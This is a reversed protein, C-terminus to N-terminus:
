SRVCTEHGRATVPVISVVEDPGELLAAEDALNVTPCVHAPILRLLAGLPPAEGSEVLLPLHEESPRLARLGAMGEVTACPDGCAADLAKSGADLTVRDAAPRSVVRAQVTVAAQFGPIGLAESRGDWYVVTGPSVCHDVTRFPEYALAMPFTPTGSTILEHPRDITRSLALLDAYLGRCAAVRDNPNPQYLHGDYFHLGRLDPGAAALVAQVRSRDAIPIGTRHYGPDLDVFVGFGRRRLEATHAPDESLMAFRHPRHAKALAAFRDLNSGHQAMAVLVDVPEDCVRLLVELERTTAVKFKRVGAAFVERLVETVKATKVHPRWRGLDTGLLERMRRLNHRVLDLRILLTPTQLESPRRPPAPM